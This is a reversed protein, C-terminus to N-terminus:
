YEDVEACEEAYSEDCEACYFSLDLVGEDRPCLWSTGSFVPSRGRRARDVVSPEIGRPLSDYQNPPVGSPRNTM